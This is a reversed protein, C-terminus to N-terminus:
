VMIQIFYQKKLKGLINAFYLNTKQDFLMNKIENANEANKIKKIGDTEIAAIAGVKGGIVEEIEGVEMDSVYSKDSIYLKIYEEYFIKVRIQKKFSNIDIGKLMLEHFLAEVTINNSRAINTIIAFIDHDDVDISLREAEVFAIQENILTELVDKYFIKKNIEDMNDLNVNSLRTVMHLRVNFDHTTIIDDNVKALIESHFVAYSNTVLIINVFVLM